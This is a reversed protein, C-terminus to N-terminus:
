TEISEDNAPCTETPENGAHYSGGSVTLGQCNQLRGKACSVSSM